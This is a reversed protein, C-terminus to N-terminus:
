VYKKKLNNKIAAFGRIGVTEMPKEKVVSTHM